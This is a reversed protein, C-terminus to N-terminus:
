KKSVFLYNTCTFLELIESYEKIEYLGDLLVRYVMYNEHLINWFDRFYTRSDINCGGFEIQIIDISKSQLMNKAGRLANLENGEIDMKLFDIHSINNAACYCDLTNLQITESNSYEFCQRNYLSALGSNDGESYLVSESCADSMGFSNLIVNTGSVNQSLTNFTVSAPEFCHIQAGPFYQLFEKTYGGVNAGVDFMVPNVNKIINDKIYQIAFKEGSEEFGGGNGVNMGRLSAKYMKQWFKYYKKKGFFAKILINQLKSMDNERKQERVIM